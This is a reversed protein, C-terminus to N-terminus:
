QEPRSTITPETRANELAGTRAAADDVIGLAREYGLRNAEKGHPSWFPDQPTAVRTDAGGTGAFTVARFAPSSSFISILADDVDQTYDAIRGRTAHFTGSDTDVALSQIADFRELIVTLADTSEESLHELGAGACSLEWTRLPAGAPVTKGNLQNSLREASRLLSSRTAPDTSDDVLGCLAEIDPDATDLATSISYFPWREHPIAQQTKLLHPQGDASRTVYTPM